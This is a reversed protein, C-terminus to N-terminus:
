EFQFCWLYVKQIIFLSFTYFTCKKQLNAYLSFCLFKVYFKCIKCLYDFFGTFTGILSFRLNRGILSDSLTRCQTSSLLMHTKFLFIKFDPLLNPIQMFFKVTCSPTWSSNLTRSTAAINPVDSVSASASISFAFACSISCPSSMLLYMM